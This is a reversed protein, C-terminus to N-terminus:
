SNWIMSRDKIGVKDYSKYVESMERVGKDLSEQTRPILVSVLPLLCSPGVALEAIM